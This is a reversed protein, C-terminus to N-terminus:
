NGQITKHWTFGWTHCTACFDKFSEHVRHCSTCDLTPYHSKHPNRALKTAATRLAVKDYGGHCAICKDAYTDGDEIGFTAHCGLCYVGATRHSSALQDSHLWTGVGRVLADMEESGAKRNVERSLTIKNDKDTGHCGNCTEAKPESKVHKLHVIEGIRRVSGKAGHCSFCEGFETAKVHKPPLVASADRHCDACKFDPLGAIGPCPLATIIIAMIMLAQVVHYM